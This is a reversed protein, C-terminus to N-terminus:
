AGASLLVASIGGVHCRRGSRSSAGVRLAADRDLFQVHAIHGLIWQQLRWRQGLTRHGHNAPEDILNVGDAAPQRQRGEAAVLLHAYEEVLPGMNKAVAYGGRLRANATPVSDIDVGHEIATADEGAVDM